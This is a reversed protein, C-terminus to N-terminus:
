LEFCSIILSFGTSIHNSRWELTPGNHKYHGQDNGAEISFMIQGNPTDPDDRDQARITTMPQRSDHFETVSVCGSFPLFVPVEDNEDKVIVRYANSHFLPNM